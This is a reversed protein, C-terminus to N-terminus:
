DRTTGAAAYSLVHTGQESVKQLGRRYRTILTAENLQEPKAKGPRDTAASDLAVHAVIGAEAAHEMNAFRPPALRSKRKHPSLAIWVMNHVTPIGSAIWLERTSYNVPSSEV